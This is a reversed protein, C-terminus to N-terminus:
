QRRRKLTWTEERFVWALPLGAAAVWSIYTLEYLSVASEAAACGGTGVFARL